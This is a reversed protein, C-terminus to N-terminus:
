PRTGKKRTKDRPKKNLRCGPYHSGVQRCVMCPANTERPGARSAIPRTGFGPGKEGDMETRVVWDEGVHIARIPPDLLLFPNRVHTFLNRPVPGTTLPFEKDCWSSFSKDFAANRPFGCRTAHLSYRSWVLRCHRGIKERFKRRAPHKSATVFKKACVRLAESASILWKESRRYHNLKRGRPIPPLLQRDPASRRPHCGRSRRKGKRLGRKRRRNFRCPKEAGEPANTVEHTYLYLVGWFYEDIAFGYAMSVGFVWPSYLRQQWWNLRAIWHLLRVAGRVPVVSERRRGREQKPTYLYERAKRRL